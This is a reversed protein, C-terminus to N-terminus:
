SLLLIQDSLTRQCGGCIELESVPQRVRLITVLIRGELGPADGYVIAPPFATRFCRLFRHTHVHANEADPRATNTPAPATTTTEPRTKPEAPKNATKAGAAPSVATAALLTSLKM